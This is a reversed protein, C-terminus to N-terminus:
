LLPQAHMHTLEKEHVRVCACACARARACVCVCVCVCVRLIPIVLLVAVFLQEKLWCKGLMDLYGRYLVHGAGYLRCANSRIARFILIKVQRVGCM